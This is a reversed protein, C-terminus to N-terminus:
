LSDIMIYEAFGFWKIPHYIENLIQKLLGTRSFYNNSNASVASTRACERNIM